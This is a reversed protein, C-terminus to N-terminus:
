RVKVTYGERFTIAPNDCRWHITYKKVGQETAFSQLIDQYNAFTWEASRINATIMMVSTSTHDCLTIKDSYCDPFKTRLRSEIASAADGAKGGDAMEDITVYMRWVQTARFPQMLTHTIAAASNTEVTKQIVTNDAPGGAEQASAMKSTYMLAGTYPISTANLSYQGSPNDVSWCIQNDVNIDSVLAAPALYHSVRNKSSKQAVIDTGKYTWTVEHGSTNKSVTIDNLVQSYSLEFYSGTTWGMTYEAGGSVSPDLGITVGGSIGIEETTSSESGLNVTKYSSSNDTYPLAEELQIAGSGSLDMSTIYRSFFSGYWYDYLGDTHLWKNPNNADTDFYFIKDGNREGMKILVSQQIYYYDKGTKMNHVGWSRFTTVVGDPHSRTEGKWNKHCLPESLTFTESCNMLENLSSNGDARTAISRTAAKTEARQKEIGNIWDATADALLGCRYPTREITVLEPQEETVKGDEDTTTTGISGGKAEPEQYFYESNSVIVMEAMVDDAGDAGARTALSQMTSMRADYRDSLASAAASPAVDADFDFHADAYEKEQQEMLTFVRALFNLLENRTPTEIALFNNGNMVKILQGLTEESMNALDIGKVLVMRTDAGITRAPENLRKTLAAGTTNEAFDSLVAAPFAATVRVSLQDATPEVYTPPEM